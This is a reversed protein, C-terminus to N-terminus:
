GHNSVRLEPRCFQSLLRQHHEVEDRSMQTKRAERADDADLTFGKFWAERVDRLVGRRILTKTRGSRGMGPMENGHARYWETLMRVANEEGKTVMKGNVSSTAGAARCAKAVEGPSPWSRTVMGEELLRIAIDWWDQWGEEPANDILIRFLSAADAKMVEPKSAIQRPPSFRELWANFRAALDAKKSLSM